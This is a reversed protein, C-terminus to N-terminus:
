KNRGRNTHKSQMRMNKMSKNGPNRDKHDVDMGAKLRGANKMKRRSKNRDNRRDIQEQKGHYREYEEKYNRPKKPM